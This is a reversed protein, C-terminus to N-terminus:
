RNELIRNYLVDYIGKKENCKKCCVVINDFTHQGGNVKAIVHDFGRPDTVTFRPIVNHGCYVCKKDREYIEILQTRTVDGSILWQLRKVRNSYNTEPKRYKRRKANYEERRELRFKKDYRLSQARSKQPNEKHWKATRKRACEMCRQRGQVNGTWGCKKCTYMVNEKKFLYLMSFTM